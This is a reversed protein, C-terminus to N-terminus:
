PRYRVDVKFVKKPRVTLHSGELGQTIKINKAVGTCYSRRPKVTAFALESLLHSCTIRKRLITIFFKKVYDQGKLKNSKWM